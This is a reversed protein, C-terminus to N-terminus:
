QSAFTSIDVDLDIFAYEPNEFNQVCTLCCLSGHWWPKSETETEEAGLTPMKINPIGNELVFPSGGIEDVLEVKLTGEQECDCNTFAEYGARFDNLYNSLEVELEKIPRDCLPNDSDWAVVYM